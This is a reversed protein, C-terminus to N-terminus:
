RTTREGSPRRDSRARRWRAQIKHSHQPQRSLGCVCILM